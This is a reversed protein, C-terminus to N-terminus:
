QFAIAMSLFVEPNPGPTRPTWTAVASGPNAYYKSQLTAIENSSTGEAGFWNWAQLLDTYGSGAAPYGASSGQDVTNYALAVVFAPSTGLAQTCSITNASVAPNDDRNGWTTITPNTGVNAIECVVCGHWQNTTWNVTVAIDGPTPNKRWFLQLSDEATPDSQYGGSTYDNVSQDDDISAAFPPGSGNPVGNFNEDTQFVVIASGAQVDLLTKTVTAGIDDKLSFKLAQRV